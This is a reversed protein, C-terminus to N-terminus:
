QSSGNGGSNDDGTYHDRLVQEAQELMDWLEPIEQALLDAIETYKKRFAILDHLAFRVIESRKNFDKKASSFRVYLRQNANTKLPEPRVITYFARHVEQAEPRNIVIQIAGMLHRAQQLRHQYAASPDDWNFVGLSHMPNNPDSAVEVVKEPTREEDRLKILEGYAVQAQDNRIRSGPKARVLVEEPSVPPEPVRLPEAM